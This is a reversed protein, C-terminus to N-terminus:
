FYMNKIRDFADKIKEANKKYQDFVIEFGDEFGCCFDWYKKGILLEEPAIFQLVTNPKWDNNEGFKNYATAFFIEVTEDTGILSNKLLFYQQLLSIKESKSKKSDLHGSAKLEILYHKKNKKDYFYNDTNLSMKYSDINKPTICTFNNYHSVKPDHDKIQYSHMLSNIYQHQEPLIYGDIKSKVEYTLGAISNGINQLTNGLSSDFSRVFASYFMFEEGLESIFFNNKKMNIIGNSKNVQKEYKTEFKKIFNEIEDDIIKRIKNIKETKKM